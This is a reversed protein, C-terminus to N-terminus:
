EKGENIRYIRKYRFTLNVKCDFIDLDETDFKIIVPAKKKM